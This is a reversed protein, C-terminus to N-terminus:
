RDFHRQKLNKTTSIAENILLSCKRWLRTKQISVPVRMYWNGMTTYVVEYGLSHKQRLKELTSFYGESLSGSSKHYCPLPLVFVRYGMKRVNLCYDVAYLHWDDCNYEDFSLRSFLERPIIILCEDLTQVEEPEKIRHKGAFRPPSGHKINTLVGSAKKKGAVGAIGFDLLGAITCEADRLWHSSDLELDQHAFILYDGNAKQGGINLAVAASRYEKASNNILILECNTDQENISKLLHNNLAQEDNYVCIVSIM